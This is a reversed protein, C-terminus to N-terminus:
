KGLLNAQKGILALTMYGVAFVVGAVLVNEVVGTDVEEVVKKVVEEVPIEEETCTTEVDGGYKTTQTCITRTETTKNGDALVGTVTVLMAFVVLLSVVAIKGFNMKKMKGWVLLDSHTM